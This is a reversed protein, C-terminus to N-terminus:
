NAFLEKGKFPIKLLSVFCMKRKQIKRKDAPYVPSAM